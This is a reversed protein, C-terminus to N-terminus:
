AACAGRQHLAKLRAAASQTEETMPVDGLADQKSIGSLPQTTSDNPCVVQKSAAAIAPADSSGAQQRGGRGQDCACACVCPM